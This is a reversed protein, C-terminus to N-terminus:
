SGMVQAATWCGASSSCGGHPNDVNLSLFRSSGLSLRAGAVGNGRRDKFFRCMNEPSRFPIVPLDSWSKLERSADGPDREAVGAKAESISEGRTM